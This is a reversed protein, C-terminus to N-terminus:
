GNSWGSGPDIGSSTPTCPPSSCGARKTRATSSGPGSRTCLARRRTPANARFRDRGFYPYDDLIWEVPLQIIGTPEGDALIEYPSDDVMLSSDYLLDLERILELTNESCDWSGARIGVPRRGSIETLTDLSRQMLRREDDRELRSTLEHIWGHIGIEHGVAVIRKVDDTYLKASVGPVFFTAKIDYRDLLGLVRPLGARAGYEGSSLRSPSTDGNRLWLTENDVDFSLAVAM